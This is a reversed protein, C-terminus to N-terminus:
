KKFCLDCPGQFTYLSHLFNWIEKFFLTKELKAESVDYLHLSDDNGATVFHAGDDSFDCSNLEKANDKFVKVSKFNTVVEPRFKKVLSSLSQSVQSQM